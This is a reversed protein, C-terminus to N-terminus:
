SGDKKVILKELVRMQLGVSSDEGDCECKSFHIWLPM